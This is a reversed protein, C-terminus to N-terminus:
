RRGHPLTQPNNSNKLKRSGRDELIDRSQSSARAMRPKVVHVAATHQVALTNM